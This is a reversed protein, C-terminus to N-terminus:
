RRATRHMAPSLANVELAHLLRCRASRRRQGARATEPAGGLGGGGAGRVARSLQLRDAAGCLRALQSAPRRTSIACCGMALGTTRCRGCSSRSPEQARARACRGGALADDLDLAGPDLRVPFLSTFWGVTRSLDVDAFVEERGHGELDLLVASSEDSWQRGAAPALACGGVGARDAARRQHRRPLGGAGPDAAGGHRCGAADADSARGRRRHRSRPDLAGDVLSAAPQDLMAAWFSLEGVRSPDQAHLWCGHAWRRFSTGPRPLAPVRGDCDGGLGGCPGAGPHAVVRRGGCSSPHMLLLRGPRTRGADFWVAQLMMGAAPALRRDRRKRRSPSARRLAAADLGCVDIRRLCDGARVAGAPAVALATWEGSGAAGATVCGCRM